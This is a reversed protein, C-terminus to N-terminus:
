ADGAHGDDREGGPDSAPHTAGGTTRASPAADAGADASQAAHDADRDEDRDEGVRSDEPGEALLSLLALASQMEDGKLGLEELSDLLAEPGDDAFGQLITMARVLGEIRRAAGRLRRSMDHLERALGALRDITEGSLARVRGPAAGGAIARLPPPRRGATSRRRRPNTADDTGDYTILLRLRRPRDGARDGPRDDSGSM